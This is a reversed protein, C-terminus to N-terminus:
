DHQLRRHRISAGRLASRVRRGGLQAIALRWLAPRLLIQPYTQALKALRGAVENFGLGSNASDILFQLTAIAQLRKTRGSELRAEDLFDMRREFHLQSYLLGRGRGDSTVGHQAAVNTTVTEAHVRFGVLPEAIYGFDWNLAIRMWLERDGFPEEEARLGGAEVIAKTRYVVSSFCLGWTSTMLQELALDHREIKVPSRSLLRNVRRINVRRIARSRGDILDCASHALGVNEHRELLEVAAALHGPYLVDDDPLLVLFETDALTILRNINAIAGVNRESRVYDIREDGFSRVCDPTNDESANDSVILRFDTFSQALVSEIAQTLLEARNFTPIGVTLKTASMTVPETSAAQAAAVADPYKSLPDVVPAPTRKQM